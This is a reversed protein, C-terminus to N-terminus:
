RREGFKASSMVGMRPKAAPVTLEHSYQLVDNVAPLPNVFREPNRIAICSLLSRHVAPSAASESKPVDTQASTMFRLINVKGPMVAINWGARLVQKQADIADIPEGNGQTNLSAFQRFILPSVLLMFREQAGENGLSPHEVCAFHVLAKSNNIGLDGSAIGEQVWRMFQSALPPIEIGPKPRLVALRPLAPVVPALVDHPAPPQASPQAARPKHITPAPKLPIVPAADLANLYQVSALPARSSEAVPNPAVETQNLDPAPVEESQAYLAALDDPASDATSPSGQESIGPRELDVGSSM